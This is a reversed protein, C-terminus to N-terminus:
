ESPVLYDTAVLKELHLVLSSYVIDFSFKKDYLEHTKKSIDSGIDPNQILTQIVDHLTSGAEDNYQLGISHETILQEVEGKLPTLIPIGLSMADVVKNPVSIVFDSKNLYPVLSAMSREALVEVKPRDVWGAFVVNSLGQLIAKTDELSVGGGCIVFQTNDGASEAALAAALIPKFDLVPTLTGVYFVRPRGDNKVGLEDWWQGAILKEEETVQGIPTTLPYVGDHKSACRSSFNQAWSLFSDAMATLGTADKMANKALYFYPWFLMRGIPRLAEPLADVFIVPWQDKIDMLFPVGNKKLWSSLVAAPEIPPYGIFAVDPLEKEDRLVKKLGIALQMHDIIRAVGINKNYGSSHLLRVELNESVKITKNEQYRHAREQHYFTSSWLVVSHGAKILANALNMARMPAMKNDDIHLPEGTQFIWVKLKNNM